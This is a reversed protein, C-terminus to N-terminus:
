TLGQGSEFQVYEACTFWRVDRFRVDSRVARDLHDCVRSLATACRRPRLCRPVLSVISCIILWHDTRQVLVNITVRDLECNFAWGYGEENWLETISAACDRLSSQLFDVLDRGPPNAGDPDDGIWGGERPFDAECVLYDRVM